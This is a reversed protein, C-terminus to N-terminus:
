EVRVVFRITFSPTSTGSAGLMTGAPAVRIGTVSPDFGNADPVPSYTYPPGGGPQNSFRLDTLHDFSLGSAAPGDVFQVPSGSTTSTYVALGNPIADTVVLSNADVPGAGANTVTISYRVLSGPIRKPNSTGNTPDSIVESLKQIQIAPIALQFTGIGLDTVANETGERATVRMTWVGPMANAPVNFAYQYTRTAAGSDQVSSMTADNVVVNSAPDLITISAGTIDFSGFPDSVLARAYVTSGPVFSTTATGSPYAATFAQVSDVNIVSLSNLEVSSYNGASAFPHVIVERDGGGSSTNTITLTFSEGAPVTVPGPVNLIITRLNANTSLTPAISLQATAITPGGSRGLTVRISRQNTQIIFNRSLWLHVPFNDPALTVPSSLAPSLAYVADEGEDLTQPPQATAPPARHLRLPNSWLYLPKTGSGPMQSQSVVVQPASVTAGPGAANVVTATNDISTGPPTSAAVQVDFVIAVNGNAPVSIGTVNLFGTSNAGTGLGTSANTAGSPISNLQFGSVNSPLDDTVAAETAAIGASESITITYRLTDGPEADGGNLDQVTKTSTSLNPGLVTTPDSATNNAADPDHSPTTVQVTNTIAPYAANGVAVTLTLTPLSANAAVPGPHTCSVTQGSASCSWGTGSGSVFSLGAPLVDTVVIPFDTPQSGPQNSVSIEYAGNSGVTFNGSHTMAVSLDVVPESTVSVVQATLLVLDGGASYLTTASTQGPSLLGSVDYTDIDAGYSNAVGASNVTGDYQQTTPSSGAPVIGDDLLTGNFRLAESVGNLADSNGPDGEWTIVAVRGDINSSPIRFGDPTLTLSSGRFFQLGDFINIARLRESPSGYVVIVGWGALVASSNCHPNGTAVSLGSFTLNGNGSIRSTVNAFGGFYPFNTGGNAFTAQFTRQATVGSGNLTVNADVNSGSGGWYLYAAIISSGPPIGSLMQSSSSGVECSDGNDSQTRLSGGTAVFNVNGTFRAFRTIPVQQALAEFSGSALLVLVLIRWLHKM